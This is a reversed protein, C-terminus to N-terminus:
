ENKIREQESILNYVDALYRLSSRIDHQPCYGYEMMAKEIPLVPDTNIMSEDESEFKVPKQLVESLAKVLEEPTVIRGTGANVIDFTIDQELARIILNALDRVDLYDAIRRFRAPIRIIPDPSYFMRRFEVSMWNGSNMPVPGIVGASRIVITQTSTQNAIFNVVQENYLKTVGYTSIPFPITKERRDSNMGYVGLTSIYVLKRVPYKMLATFLSLLLRSENLVAIGAHKQFMPMMSGAAVIIKEIEWVKLLEILESESIIKQDKVLSPDIGSIRSLYNLDPNVGLLYVYRQNEQLLAKAVHAGIMGCGIILLGM